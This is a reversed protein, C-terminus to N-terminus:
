PVDTLGLVRIDEDIQKRTQSYAAVRPLGKLLVATVLAVALPVAPVLWLLWHSVGSVAFLMLAVGIFVLALLGSALLVVTYAARERLRAQLTGTEQRLLDSYAAVHTTLLGPEDLLIRLLPPLM